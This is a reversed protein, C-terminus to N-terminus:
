DETKMFNDIQEKTLGTCKIVIDETIGLELMKRAIKLRAIMKERIDNVENNEM